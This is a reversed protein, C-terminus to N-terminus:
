DIVPIFHECEELLQISYNNELYNLCDECRCVPYDEIISDEIYFHICKDCITKKDEILEYCKNCICLGMDFIMDKKIHEKLCKSCEM